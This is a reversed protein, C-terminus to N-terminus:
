PEKRFHAIYFGDGEMTGPLIQRSSLMKFDTHEKLFWMANEENEQRSITGTSYVMRGGPRVYQSVVALIERQLGALETIKEPTMHFRIDKKRRMVGLGSCPLDAVVLDARQALAPDPVRADWIQPQINSVQCRRINDTLLNVKYETLDRALIHGAGHMMQAMHVAKGGPAACVDVVFDGERPAATHAVLMSSVDQVYFLGEKFGSLAKLHDFGSISFADSLDKCPVADVGEAALRSALEDPTCLNTNTRITVPAPHLFAQLMQEMDTLETLESGGYLDQRWMQIMWKPISYRVSLFTLPDNEKDPWVIRDKSRSIGRLVGNVFGSLNRFGKKKALLVAENCAAADPVADMYRIQYVGSRIINCIVPKMKRVPVKSFQDIIYDIQILYELTGETMRTLFARDKKDLYQYKELVQQLAIHSYAEQKTVRLLIDLVLQRINVTESM